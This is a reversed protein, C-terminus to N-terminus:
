RLQVIRLSGEVHGVVIPIPRSAGGKQRLVIM